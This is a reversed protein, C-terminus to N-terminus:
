LVNEIFLKRDLAISKRAQLAQVQRGCENSALNWVVRCAAFNRNAPADEHKLSNRLVHGCTPKTNETM